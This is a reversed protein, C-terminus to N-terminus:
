KNIKSKLAIGMKEELEEISYSGYVEKVFVEGDQFLFNAHETVFQDVKREGSSDLSLKKVLKPSGDKTFLTSAVIVKKAGAVLDMAGGVGLIPQNPVSWNAIEGHCDVELTGLVAVDVHGGRIMGFSFASDFFAAEPTITIPAKSADILDILMSFNQEEEPAEYWIYAILATYYLKEAKVWFDETAQAGEGKTNVIITNVLKLIDKESRIYAFPNYHNSKTFNITNLVKIRYGNDFLLKGVELLITGKPDTCVYSSHLQMINPKVYFRTKGSGSGGIILVNKNRAYKPSSPRGNMQLRETQTLLINNEFNEKDMYPDIDKPTGWRASGYEEGHRFKKANKAKFYVVLRMGVGFAVGILLDMPHFSPMPNQFAANSALSDMVRNLTDSGETIRYGYYFKDAVYGFIAYPLVKLIVKKPELSKTKSKITKPINKLDKAIGQIINGM